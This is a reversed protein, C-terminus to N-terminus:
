VKIAVNLDDVYIAETVILEKIVKNRMSTDVIEPLNKRHTRLELRLRPSKSITDYNNSKKLYRNFLLILTTNFLFAMSCSVLGVM